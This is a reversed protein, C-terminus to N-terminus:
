DQILFQMLLLNPPEGRTHSSHVQNSNVIGNKGNASFLRFLQTFKKGRLNRERERSKGKEQEKQTHWVPPSSSQLSVRSNAHMSLVITYHLKQSQVIETM